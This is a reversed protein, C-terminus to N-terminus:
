APQDAEHDLSKEGNVKGPTVAPAAFSKQKRSDIDCSNCYFSYGKDFSQVAQFCDHNLPKEIGCAICKRTIPQSTKGHM